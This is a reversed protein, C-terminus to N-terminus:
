AGGKGEIFATFDVTPSNDGSIIDLPIDVVVVSALSYVSPDTTARLNGNRIAQNFNEKLKRDNSVINLDGSNIAKVKELGNKDPLEVGIANFYAVGSSNRANAAAIAMATGVFGLGQICVIPRKEETVSIYDKKEVDCLYSSKGIM